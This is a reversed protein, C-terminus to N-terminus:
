FFGLSDHLLSESDRVPNLIQRPRAGHLLSHTELECLVVQHTSIHLHRSLPLQFFSSFFFLSSSYNLVLFIRPLSLLFPPHPINQYCGSRSSFM